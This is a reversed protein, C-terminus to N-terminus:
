GAVPLGFTETADYQADFIILWLRELVHAWMLGGAPVGGRGYTWALTAPTDFVDAAHGTPLVGQTLEVLMTYLSRDRRVAEAGPVLLMAENATRLTAWSTINHGLFTELLWTMPVRYMDMYGEPFREMVMLCLCTVPTFPAEEVGRVWARWADDDEEGMLAQLPQLREARLIGGRIDDDQMTLLLRPLEDYHRSVFLAMSHAERGVANALEDCAVVYLALIPPVDTACRKLEGKIYLVFRTRTLPFLQAFPELEASHWTVLVVLEAGWRSLSASRRALDEEEGV